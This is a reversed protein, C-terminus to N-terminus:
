YKIRFIQVGDENYIRTFHQPTGNLYDLRWFASNAASYLMTIGAQRLAAYTADTPLGNPQDSNYQKPKNMLPWASLTLSYVDDQLHPDQAREGGAILAPASVQRQALPAVWAGGDIGVVAKGAFERAPVAAILVKDSPSSHQGLWRIATLDPPKVLVSYDDPQKATFLGQGTGATPPAFALGICAVVYLAALAYRARNGAKRLPALSGLLNLLWGVLYGILLAAPIYLMIGVALNNVAGAGPLHFQRPNAVVYLLGAWLAVALVSLHLRRLETQQWTAVSLVLALAIGLGALVRLSPDLNALVEGANYTQLYDDSINKLRDVLGGFYNNYLNLLWPLAVLLAGLGIILLSVLSAVVGKRGGGFPSSSKSGEGFFPASKRGEWRSPSPTPAHLAVQEGEWGGGKTSPNKSGEWRSPSPTPAHLASSGRGAEGAPPPTQQGEWRSPNPTPTAPAAIALRWLLVAVVWAAYFILVRYHSLFLGVILVINLILLPWRQRLGGGGAGGPPLPSQAAGGAPLLSQAAAVLAVMAFPLIAQGALQTYRGWNAYFAPMTSVLGTIMASVLGAWKAWRAPHFLGTSLYYAALVTLANLAQGVYLVALTADIGSAWILLAAQTHFGFHYTFSILPIYPLYDSPVGGHDVILETVITHHVSDGYLPAQLDRIFYLRVALSALLAVGLLAVELTPRQLGFYIRQRYILAASLALLAYLWISGAPVHILTTYLLLTPWLALGLGLSTLLPMATIPAPLWRALLGYVAAGPLMIILAYLLLSIILV